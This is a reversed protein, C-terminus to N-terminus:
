LAMSFSSFFAQQSSKTFKELFICRIKLLGLGTGQIAKMVKTVIIKREWYFKNVLFEHQM